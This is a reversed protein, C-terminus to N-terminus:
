VGFKRKNELDIVLALLLQKCPDKEDPIKKAAEGLKIIVRDLINMDKRNLLEFDRDIKKQEFEWKKIEFSPSEILASDMMWGSILRELTKEDVKFNLEMKLGLSESLEPL